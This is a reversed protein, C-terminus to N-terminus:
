VTFHYFLICRKCTFGCLIAKLVKRSANHTKKSLLECAFLTAVDGNNPTQLGLYVYSKVCTTTSSDVKNCCPPASFNTFCFITPRIAFIHM